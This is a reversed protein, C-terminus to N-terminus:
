STSTPLIEHLPRSALIEREPVWRVLSINGEAVEIGTIGNAYKCCGTNFYLPLAEEPLSEDEEHFPDHRTMTLRAEQLAKQHTQDRQLLPNHRQQEELKRIQQKMMRTLSVSAFYALHTHGAIVVQRRAQGWAYLLEARRCRKSSNEAPSAKKRALIEFFRKFLRLLLQTFGHLEDSFLDGEHGHVIFVRDGLRLAPVVPVPREMVTELMRRVSDKKWDHDHNGYVRHYREAPFTREASFTQPYHNLVDQLSDGAGEEIDGLLVLSFNNKRYYDLAKLYTPEVPNFFDTEGRDWKHADSLFIYRRDESGDLCPARQFHDDLRDFTMQKESLSM